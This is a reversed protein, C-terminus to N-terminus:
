VGTSKSRFLIKVTAGCQSGLLFPHFKSDIKSKWFVQLDINKLPQTGKLDILRYVNPYYYIKPKQETGKLMPVIFDSLIPAINSTAGQISDGTTSYIVPTATNSPSVPLYGSTTFVISQVPNCLSLSPSNQSSVIFGVSTNETIKIPTINAQHNNIVNLKFYKNADPSNSLNNNNDLRYCDQESIETTDFGNFITEVPANWYINFKKNCGCDTTIDFESSNYISCLGTNPEYMFFPAQAVTTKEGVPVDNFLANLTSNVMTIWRQFSYIFYYEHSFNDQSTSPPQINLNSPSYQVQRKYVNVSTNDSHLTELVFTYILSNLSGSQAQPIMVPLSCSDMEFRVISFFFQSPDEILAKGTRMEAFNLNQPKSGTIDNNYVSIDYYIHTEDNDYNM